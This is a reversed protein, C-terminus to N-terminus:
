ESSSEVKPTQHTGQGAHDTQAVEVGTSTQATTVSGCGAGAMAPTAVLGFAFAIVSLTRLM